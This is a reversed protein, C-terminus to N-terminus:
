EFHRLAEVASLESARRAPFYATVAAMALILFFYLIVMSATPLFYLHRDVLLISLMSETEIHILSLAGMLVFAGIIGAICALATLLVTETIFLYKVDRKQMGIARVTGIERTRERITMRLTNLVGILIIFFLILVAVLAVIFLATEFALIFDATEYMTRVDLWPGRWRTRTMNALKIKLDDNTYTRPLLKWEPALLAYLYSGKAPRFSGAATNKPLNQLYTKYFGKESMLLAPRVPGTFAGDDFLGTVKLTLETGAADFRDDYAFTFTDGPGIHLSGALAKGVLAGDESTEEPAAGKLISLHGKMAVAAADDRSLGFASAAISAKKLSATGEIAGIAPRLKAYLREAEKKAADEDRIRKFNVHLEGTEWPRLGIMTKLTKLPLYIAMGEFMNTSRIIATVTLRATQAQGTVTRTRMNIIDRYKVGLLKAKDSYIIVPNEMDGSTFGKLSGAVMNQNLYQSFEPDIEVGVVITNDGRANGILRAFTAVSEDVSKIDGVNRRIIRTIRDRDRIIRRNQSSDEMMTVSMHGTMYVVMRNLLNDTIGHSFSNAMVLIMMGFTIAIGLFFSRRKQRLLNRLGLSLILKMGSGKM